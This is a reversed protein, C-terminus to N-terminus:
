LIWKQFIYINDVKNIFVHVNDKNYDDEEGTKMAADGGGNDEEIKEEATRRRRETERKEGETWGM